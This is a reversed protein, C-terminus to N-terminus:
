AVVGEARLATIETLDLGTERLVEDTHEGLRPPPLRLPLREGDVLIPSAPVEVGGM